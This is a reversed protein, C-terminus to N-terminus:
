RVARTSLRMQGATVNGSIMELCRAIEHDLRVGFASHPGIGEIKPLEEASASLVGRLTKFRKLVEKAQPKCDRRPSGLTLLLEM